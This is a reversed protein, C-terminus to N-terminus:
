PRSVGSRTAGDVLEAATHSTPVGGDRGRRGRWRAWRVTSRRRARRVIAIDISLVLLGLPVMWFGLIPLFGLFGGLILAVGIAIRWRRQRPLEVGRGFMEIRGRRVGFGSGGGQSSAESGKGAM